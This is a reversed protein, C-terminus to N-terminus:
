KYPASPDRYIWNGEFHQSNNNPWHLTSNVSQSLQYGMIAYAQNAVSFNTSYNGTVSQSMLFFDKRINFTATINATGGGKISNEVWLHTM